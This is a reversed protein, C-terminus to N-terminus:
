EVGKSKILDLQENTLLGNEQYLELNVHKGNKIMNCILNLVKSSMPNVKERSNSYLKNYLVMFQEDNIKNGLHQVLIIDYAEKLDEYLKNDIFINLMEYQM